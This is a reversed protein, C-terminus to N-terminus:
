GRRALSERAAGAGRRSLAWALAIGICSMFPVWAMAAASGAALNVAYVSFIGLHQAAGAAVSCAFGRGDLLGDKACACAFWAFLPVFCLLGTVDGPHTFPAGGLVAGGVLHTLANVLMFGYPMLGVVPNRRGLAAAVPFAVYIVLVNVEPFMAANFDGGFMEIVGKEVFATM